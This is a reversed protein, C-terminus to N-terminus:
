GGRRMSRLPVAKRKLGSRTPTLGKTAAFEHLQRHTMGLVGRNRKYLQSPHHEALAM